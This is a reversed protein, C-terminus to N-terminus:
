RSALERAVDAVPRDANESKICAMGLEIGFQEAAKTDSVDVGKELMIKGLEFALDLPVDEQGQAAFTIFDSCTMTALSTQGDGGGTTGTDGGQEKTKDGQEKDAGGGQSDGGQGQEDGEPEQPAETPAQPASTTAEPKPSDSNKSVLLWAVGGLIALLVVVLVAILVGKSRNPDPQQYGYGPQYGYGAPDPQSPYGGAPPMSPPM